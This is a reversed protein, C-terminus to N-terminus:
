FVTLTMGAERESFMKEYESRAKALNAPKVLTAIDRAIKTFVAGVNVLKDITVDEKLPIVEVQLRAKGDKIEKIKVLMVASNSPVNFLAGALANQVDNSSIVQRLLRELNGDFPVTIEKMERYAPYLPLLSALVDIAIESPIVIKNEPVPTPALLALVKKSGPTIGVIAANGIPYFMSSAM